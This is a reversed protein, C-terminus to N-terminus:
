KQLWLFFKLAVQSSVKLIILFTFDGQSKSFYLNTIEGFVEDLVSREDEGLKGFQELIWINAKNKAELKPRKGPRVELDENHRKM